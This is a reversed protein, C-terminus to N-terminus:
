RRERPMSSVDARLSRSKAKALSHRSRTFAPGTLVRISASILRLRILTAYLRTVVPLSPLSPPLFQSSIPHSGDGCLQGSHQMCDAIAPELDLFDAAIEWNQLPHDVALLQDVQIIGCGRLLWSGYNICKRAIVFLAVGINMAAHM